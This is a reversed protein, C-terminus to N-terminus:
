TKKALFITERYLDEKDPPTNPVPPMNEAIAFISSVLRFFDIWDKEGENSKIAQRTFHDVTEVATAWFHQIKTRIQIEVLLGDYESNKDSYYKYVLHISRYGDNKPQTIYNKLNHLKHKIGKRKLYLDFLKDVAIMDKLVARTGAVDQMRSMQMKNTQLRKLKKIISPTRKLRRVVLADSDSEAALKRLRIAFTHLPFSHASRWNSLINGASDIKDPSSVNSALIDGAKNIENNSFKLKTWQM